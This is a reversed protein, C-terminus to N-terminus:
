ILVLSTFRGFMSEQSAVPRDAPLLREARFPLLLIAVTSVFTWWWDRYRILHICEVGNGGQKRSVEKFMMRRSIRPMSLKTLWEPQEFKKGTVKLVHVAYWACTVM